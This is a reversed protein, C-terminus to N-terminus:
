HQKSKCKQDDINDKTKSGIYGIKIKKLPLKLSLKLLIYNTLILTPRYIRYAIYYNEHIYKTIDLKM